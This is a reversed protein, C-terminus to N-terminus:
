NVSIQKPKAAEPKALTVALVGNVMKADVHDADVEGPLGIVRSFRGAERERRHYRAEGDEAPIRREGSIMLNRGKIQLSIEEAKLGPLEARIRYHDTDETINVAPFVAPSTWRAGPRGMVARTLRDMQRLIREPDMLPHRWAVRPRNYIRSVMM